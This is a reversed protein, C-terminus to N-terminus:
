EAAISMPLDARTASLDGNLVDWLRSTSPGPGISIVNTSRGHTYRRVIPLSKKNPDVIAHNSRVAAFVVSYRAHRDNPVYALEHTGTENKLLDAVGQGTIKITFKKKTAETSFTFGNRQSFKEYMVQLQGAWEMAGPRSSQPDITLFVSDQSIPDAKLRAM